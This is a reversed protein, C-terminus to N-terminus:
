FCKGKKWNVKFAHYYLKALIDMVSHQVTSLQGTVDLEECGWVRRDM